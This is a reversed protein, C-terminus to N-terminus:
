EVYDPLPITIIDDGSEGFRRASLAWNAATRRWWGMNCAVMEDIQDYVERLPDDNNVELKM